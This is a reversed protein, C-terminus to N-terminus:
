VPELKWGLWEGDPDRKLVDKRGGMSEIIAGEPDFWRAVAENAWLCWAPIQLEPIQQGVEDCVAIQGLAFIFVTTPKKM